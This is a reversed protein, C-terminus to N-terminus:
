VTDESSPRSSKRSSNKDAHLWLGPRSRPLRPLCIPITPASIASSYTAESRADFGNLLILTQLSISNKLSSEPLFYGSKERLPLNSNSVRSVRLNLNPSANERGPRGEADPWLSGLAWFSTSPLGCAAGLRDDGMPQARPPRHCVVAPAPRCDRQAAWWLVARKPQGVGGGGRRRRRAPLM